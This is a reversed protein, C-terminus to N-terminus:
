KLKERKRYVKAKIECLYLDKEEEDLQNYFKLIEHEEINGNEFKIGNTILKILEPKEKEWNYITALSVKIRKAIEKKNM